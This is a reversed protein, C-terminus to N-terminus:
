WPKQYKFKFGNLSPRPRPLWSQFHCNEAFTYKQAKEREWVCHWHFKTRLSSSNSSNGVKANDSSVGGCWWWLQLQYRSGSITAVEGSQRGRGLELLNDFLRWVLVSIYLKLRWLLSFLYCNIIHKWSSKIEFSKERFFCFKGNGMYLWDFHNNFTLKTLFYRM